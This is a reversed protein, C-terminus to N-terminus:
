ETAEKVPADPKAKDGANDEETSGPEKCGNEKLKRIEAKQSEMTDAADSQPAM